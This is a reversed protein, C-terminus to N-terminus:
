ESIIKIVVLSGLFILVSVALRPIFCDRAMTYEIPEVYYLSGISLRELLSLEWELGLISPWVVLQYFIGECNCMYYLISIIILIPLCSPWYQATCHAMIIQNVSPPLDSYEARTSSHCTEAIQSMFDSVTQHGTVRM